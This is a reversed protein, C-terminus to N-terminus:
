STSSESAENEKAETVGKAVVLVVMSFLSVGATVLLHALQQEMATKQAESIELKKM